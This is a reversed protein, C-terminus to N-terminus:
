SRRKKEVEGVPRAAAVAAAAAAAVAGAAAVLAAAADGLHPEAADGPHPAAEARLLAELLMKAKTNAMVKTRDLTVKLQRMGKTPEAGRM